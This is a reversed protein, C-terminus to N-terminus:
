LNAPVPLFNDKSHPLINIHSTMGRAEKDDVVSYQKETLGDIVEDADIEASLHEVKDASNSECGLVCFCECMVSVSLQSVTEDTVTYNDIVTFIYNGV